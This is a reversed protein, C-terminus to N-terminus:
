LLMRHKRAYDIITKATHTAHGRATKDFPIMPNLLAEDVVGDYTLQAHVALIRNGAAIHGNLYRIARKSKDISFTHSRFTNFQHVDIEELYGAAQMTLPFLRITSRGHGDEGLCGHISLWNCAIVSYAEYAENKTIEPKGDSSRRLSLLTLLDCIRSLRERVTEPPVHVIVEKQSDGGRTYIFNETRNVFDNRGHIPHSPDFPQVLMHFLDTRTIPHTIHLNKLFPDLSGLPTEPNM